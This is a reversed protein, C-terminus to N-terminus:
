NRAPQVKACDKMQIYTSKVGDRTEQVTVQTASVLIKREEVRTENESLEAPKHESYVSLCEDEFYVRPEGGFAMSSSTFALLSYLLPRLM